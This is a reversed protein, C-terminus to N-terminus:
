GAKATPTDHDAAANILAKLARDLDFEASSRPYFNHERVDHGDIEAIELEDHRRLDIERDIDVEITGADDVTAPMITPSCPDIPTWATVVGRTGDTLTILSGPAYPPVVAVLARLVMADFRGRQKGLVVDRIAAVTPVRGDESPLMARDFADAVAAIRAYIHIDSGALPQPPSDPRRVAPFGKGDFRQHHHLVVVAASPEIKGKVLDYGLRAHEQWEPDSEDKHEDWYRLTSPALRLMGVDHLMAGVGLPVVDRAATAALRSREHVLYSELKLGMLVALYSTAASHRLLPRDNIGMEDMFLAARPNDSLKEILAVVGSRYRYYDLNADVELADVAEAVLGTMHERAAAVGPSIYQSLFALKPYRIYVAGVLNDRLRGILREDLTVGAKLLVTNPSRPHFVPMALAMGPRANTLPVRLM